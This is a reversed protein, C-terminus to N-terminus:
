NVRYQEEGAESPLYGNFRKFTKSFYSDNTFGCAESVEHISYKGTSLLKRAEKCRLMNIYTVPTVGTLRKFERSFYFKSLGAEYAIDELTLRQNFHSKIYGMAILMSEESPHAKVQGIDTPTSHNRVLYLMLDLLSARVAVGQHEDSGKLEGILRDCLRAVEPDRIFVSFELRDLNLGSETLFENDIIMCESLIVTDSCVAHIVNPNVIVVDGRSVPYYQAGCLIRGEGEPTYLIELNSHWNPERYGKIVGCHNLVPLKKHIGIHAEYVAM